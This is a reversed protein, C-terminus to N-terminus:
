PTPVIEVPRLVYPRGGSQDWRIKGSRELIRVWSLVTGRGVGLRAEILASTLPSGAKAASTILKLLRDLNKDHDKPQTHYHSM